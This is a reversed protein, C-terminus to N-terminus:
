NEENLLKVESASFDDDEKELHKFDYCMIVIIVTTIVAALQVSDDGLWDNFVYDRLLFHTYTLFSSAQMLIALYWRRKNTFVYLLIMIDALFFYREHMHPLVYPTILASMAAIYIMNKKTVKVKFHYLCTLGIGVVAFAILLGAGLNIHRYAYRFQFFAYMNASGYNANEYNGAQTAYIGAMDSIKVGLLLGPIWTFAVVLPIWLMNRLTIKKNLWFYILAPFIFIIHMKNAFACGILIMALNNKKKLIFYLAWVAFCAYLQDCQSWLASNLFMTPLFLLVYFVMYSLFKNKTIKRVLLFSGFTLGLDFSFCVIKILINPNEVPIYTLLSMLTMYAIPYDCVPDSNFTPYYKLALLGGNDKLFNFWPKLFSNYDGSAYDIFCVKALISVILLVIAVILFLNKRFFAFFGDFVTNCFKDIKSNVKKTLSM